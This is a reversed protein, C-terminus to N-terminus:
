IILFLINLLSLPQGDPCGRKKPIFLVIGQSNEMKHNHRDPL